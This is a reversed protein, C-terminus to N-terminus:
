SRRGRRTCSRKESAAGGGAGVVALIEGVPAGYTSISFSYVGCEGLSNPQIMGLALNVTGGSRNVLKVKVMDGQPKFDVPGSCPDPTASAAFNGSLTPVEPVASPLPAATPLPLPTPLLPTATPLAAQTLAVGTWALAVATNQVDTVSPGPTPAPGCAALIGILLVSLIPMFKRTM